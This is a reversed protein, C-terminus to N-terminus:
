KESDLLAVVASDRKMLEIMECCGVSNQCRGSMSGRGEWLVRKRRRRQGLGEWM